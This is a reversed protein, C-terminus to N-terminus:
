DNILVQSNGRSCVSNFNIEYLYVLCGHSKKKEVMMRFGARLMLCQQDRQEELFERKRKLRSKLIEQKSKRDKGGGEKARPLVVTISELM